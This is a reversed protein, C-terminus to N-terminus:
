VRESLWTSVLAFHEGDGCVPCRLDSVDFITEEPCTLCLAAHSLPLFVRALIRPESM